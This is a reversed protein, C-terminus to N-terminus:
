LESKLEDIRKQLFARRQEDGEPTLPWCFPRHDRDILLSLPPYRAPPLEGLGLAIMFESTLVLWDGEIIYGEREGILNLAYCVGQHALHCIIDQAETLVDIKEQTTM